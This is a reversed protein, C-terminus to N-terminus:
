RVKRLLASLTRADNLSLGPVLASRLEGEYVPWMRRLLTRGAPTLVAWQGRRDDSAPRREILKARELRDALRSFTSRSITLADAIESMRLRREPARYLAWLVDYWTLPPLDRQALAAETRAVVRAQANLIGRWADLHPEPLKSMYRFLQLYLQLKHLQLHL